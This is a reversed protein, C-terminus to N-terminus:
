AAFGELRALTGTCTVDALRLLLGRVWGPAERWGEAPPSEQPLRKEHFYVLFHEFQSPEHLNIRVVVQPVQLLPVVRPHRAVQLRNIAIKQDFVEDLSDGWVTNGAGDDNLGM